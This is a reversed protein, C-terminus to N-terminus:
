WLLFGFHHVDSSTDTHHSSESLDCLKIRVEDAEVSCVLVNNVSVNNLCFSMQHLYSIAASVDMVSGCM